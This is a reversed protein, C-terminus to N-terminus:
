IIVTRGICRDLANKLNLLDSRRRSVQTASLEGDCTLNEPSLCAQVYSYTDVICKPFWPSDKISALSIESSASRGPESPSAPASQGNGLSIVCIGRRDAPYRFTSRDGALPYGAARVCHQIIYENENRYSTIKYINKKREPISIVTGIPLM